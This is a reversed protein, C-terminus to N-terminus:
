EYQLIPYSPLPAVQEPLTAAVHQDLFFLQFGVEKKYTSFKAILVFM